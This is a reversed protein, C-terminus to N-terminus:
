RLIPAMVMGDKISCRKAAACLGHEGQDDDNHVRNQVQRNNQVRTCNTNSFMKSIEPMNPIELNADM